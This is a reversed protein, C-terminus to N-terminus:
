IIYMIFLTHMHLKMYYYILVYKYTVYGPNFGTHYNKWASFAHTSSLSTHRIDMIEQIQLLLTALCVVKQYFVSEARKAAM